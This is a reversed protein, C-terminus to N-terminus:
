IQAVFARIEAVLAKWAATKLDSEGLRLSLDELWFELAASAQKESSPFEAQRKRLLFDARLWVVADDLAAQRNGRSEQNRALALAHCVATYRYAKSLDSAIRPDERFLRRWGILALEQKGKLFALKAFAAGKAKPIDAALTEPPLEWNLEKEFSAM